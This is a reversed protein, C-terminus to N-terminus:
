YEKRYDILLVRQANVVTSSINHRYTAFSIVDGRKTADLGKVLVLTNSMTTVSDWDFMCLTMDTGVQGIVHLNAFYISTNAEMFDLKNYLWQMSHLYDKTIGSSKSTDTGICYQITATADEKTLATGFSFNFMEPKLAEYYKIFSSGNILTEPVVATGWVEQRLKFPEYEYSAVNKIIAKDKNDEKDITSDYTPKQTTEEKPETTENMDPQETEFESMVTEEPEPNNAKRSLNIGRVIFALIVLGGIIGLTIILGKKM